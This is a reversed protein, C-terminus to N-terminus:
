STSSVSKTDTQNKKNKHLMEPLTLPVLPNLLNHRLQTSIVGRKPIRVTLSARQQGMQMAERDQEPFPGKRDGNDKAEGKCRPSLAEM